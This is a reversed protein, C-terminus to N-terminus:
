EWGGFSIRSIGVLWGPGDLCYNPPDRNIYTLTAGTLVSTLRNISISLYYSVTTQWAERCSPIPQPLLSLLDRILKPWPKLTSRKPAPSQSGAKTAGSFNAMYSSALPRPKVRLLIHVGIPGNSQMSLLSHPRITSWFAVSTPASANFWSLPDIAPVRDGALLRDVEEPTFCQFLNGRCVITTVTSGARSFLHKGLPPM